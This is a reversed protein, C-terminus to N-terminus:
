WRDTLSRRWHALHRKRVYYDLINVLSEWDM